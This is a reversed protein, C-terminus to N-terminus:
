VFVVFGFRNRAKCHINWFPLISPGIDKAFPSKQKPNPSHNAQVFALNSSFLYPVTEKLFDPPIIEDADVVAFYPYETSINKLANNLAGSKFGQRTTRNIITTKEAHHLHFMKVRQLVENQTSDDLIFLHFASYDQNLCASAAEEQFDNCTTYLIAVKPTQNLPINQPNPPAKSLFSFVTTVLFYSALLWFILHFASFAILLSAELPTGSTLLIQGLRPGFLGVLFFWLSLFVIIMLPSKPKKSWALFTEANCNGTNTKAGFPKKM